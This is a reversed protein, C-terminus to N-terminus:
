AAAHPLMCDPDIQSILAACEGTRGRGRGADGATLGALVPWMM